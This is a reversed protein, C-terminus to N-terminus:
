AAPALQEPLVGVSEILEIVRRNAEEDLSRLPSPLMKQFFGRYRCISELCALMPGFELALSLRTLQQQLRSAREADDARAADWLAVILEPFANIMATVFGDSGLETSLSMSDNAHLYAFNMARREAVPWALTRTLSPSVDKCGHIRPHAALLRLHKFDLMNSVWPANYIILPKSLRDAVTTYYDVVEAQTMPQYWPALVAYYDYALDDFMEARQLTRKTGMDSVNLVMPLRGAATEIATEAVIRQNADPILDFRGTTGLVWLGHVGSRIQHEIFAGYSTVDISEDLNFATALPPVIGHLFPLDM